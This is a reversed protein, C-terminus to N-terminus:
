ALQMVFPCFKGNKGSLILIPKWTLQISTKKSDQPKSFRKAQRPRFTSRRRRIRPKGLFAERIVDVNSTSGENKSTSAAIVKAKARLQFILCKVHLHLSGMLKQWLFEKIRRIGWIFGAESHVTRNSSQFMNFSLNIGTHCSGIVFSEAFIGGLFLLCIKRLREMIVDKCRLLDRFTLTWVKRWTFTM